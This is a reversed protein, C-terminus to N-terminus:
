EWLRYWLFSVSITMHYPLFIGRQSNRKSVMQWNSKHWVCLYSWATSVSVGCNHPCLCISRPMKRSSIIGQFTDRPCPIIPLLNRLIVNRSCHHWNASGLQAVYMSVGCGLGGRVLLVRKEKFLWLVVLGTDALPTRNKVIICCFIGKGANERLISWIFGM